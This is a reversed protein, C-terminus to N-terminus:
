AVVAKVAAVHMTLPDVTIDSTLLAILPSFAVALSLLLVTSTFPQGAYNSPLNHM